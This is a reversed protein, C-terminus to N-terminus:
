LRSIGDNEMDLVAMRAVAEHGTASFRLNETEWIWEEFRGNLLSDGGQGGEVLGCWFLLNCAELIEFYM